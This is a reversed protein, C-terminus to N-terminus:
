LGHVSTRIKFQLRTVISRKKRWTDPCELTGSESNLIPDNLEYMCHNHPISLAGFGGRVPSTYLRIEVPKLVGTRLLQRASTKSTVVFIPKCTHHSNSGNRMASIPLLVNFMAARMCVGIWQYFSPNRSSSSFNRSKVAGEHSLRCYLIAPNVNCGKIFDILYFLFFIYLFGFQHTRINRMGIVGFKQSTSPNFFMDLLCSLLRAALKCQRHNDLFRSRDTTLFMASSSPGVTQM